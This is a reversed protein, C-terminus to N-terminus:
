PATSIITSELLLISRVIYQLFRPEICTFIRVDVGMADLVRCSGDSLEEKPKASSTSVDHRRLTVLAFFLAVDVGYLTFHDVM